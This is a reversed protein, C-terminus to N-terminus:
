GAIGSPRASVPPWPSLAATVSHAVSIGHLAGLRRLRDLRYGSVIVTVVGRRARMFRRAARLATVLAPGAAYETGSLDVLLHSAGPHLHRELEAHLRRSEAVTLSRGVRFLHAGGPLRAHRSEPAAALAAARGSARSSVLM